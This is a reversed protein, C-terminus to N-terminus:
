SARSIAALKDVSRSKESKAGDSYGGDPGANGERAKKTSSDMVTKGPSWTCKSLKEQAERGEQGYAVFITGM